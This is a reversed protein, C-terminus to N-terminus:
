GTINRERSYLRYAGVRMGAETSKGTGIGIMYGRNLVRKQVRKTVPKMISGIYSDHILKTGHQFLVLVKGAKTFQVGIDFGVITADEMCTPLLLFLPEAPKGNLGITEQSVHHPSDHSCQEFRTPPPEVLAAKATDDLGPVTVHRTIGNGAM